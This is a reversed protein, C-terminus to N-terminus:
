RCFDLVIYNLLAEIYRFTTIIHVYKYRRISRTPVFVVCQVLSPLMVISCIIYVKVLVLIIYIIHTCITNDTHFIYVHIHKSGEIEGLVQISTHYISHEYRHEM